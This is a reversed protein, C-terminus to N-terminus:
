CPNGCSKERIAPGKLPAHVILMRGDESLVAPCQPWLASVTRLWRSVTLRFTREVAYSATGLQQSLGAPGLLPIRVSHGRL